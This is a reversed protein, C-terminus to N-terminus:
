KILDLIAYIHERSNTFVLYNEGNRVSVAAYDITLNPDPFNLYRIETEKYTNDLFVTSAANQSNYKFYGDLTDAMNAEWLSLANKVNGINNVKAIFGYGLKGDNKRIVTMYFDNDSVSNQIASPVVVSLTDMIERFGYRKTGALNLIRYLGPTRRTELEETDLAAGFSTLFQPGLDLNLSETISFYNEIPVFVPTATPSLTPTPTPSFTVEGRDFFNGLVWFILLTLVAM